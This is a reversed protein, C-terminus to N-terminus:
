AHRLGGGRRSPSRRGVLGSRTQDLELLASLAVRLPHAIYPYNSPGKRTQDKHLAEAQAAAKLILASDAGGVRTKLAILLKARLADIDRSWWEPLGSNAEHMQM